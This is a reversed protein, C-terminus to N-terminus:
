EPYERGPFLSAYAIRETDVQLRRKLEERAIAATLVSRPVTRPDIEPESQSGAMIPSQSREKKKKQVAMVREMGDSDEDSDSMVKIAKALKKKRVALEKDKIKKDLEQEQKRIAGLEARKAYAKERAKELAAKKADSMPKKPAPAQPPDIREAPEAAEILESEEAM